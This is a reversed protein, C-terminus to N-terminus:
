TKWYIKCKKYNVDEYSQPQGLSISPKWHYFILTPPSEGKGIKNHVVDNIAVIEEPDRLEPRIVRWELNM